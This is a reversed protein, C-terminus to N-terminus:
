EQNKLLLAQLLIARIEAEAIISDPTDIVGSEVISGVSQSAFYCNV